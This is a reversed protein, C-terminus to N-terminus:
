CQKAHKYTWDNIRLGLQVNFCAQTVELFECLYLSLIGMTELKIFNLYPGYM